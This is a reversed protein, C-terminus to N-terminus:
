SAKSGSIVFRGENMFMKSRSIVRSPVLVNPVALLRTTEFAALSIPDTTWLSLKGLVAQM